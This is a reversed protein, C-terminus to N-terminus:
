AAKALEDSKKTDDLHKAADAEVTPVYGHWNGAHGFIFHCNHSPKECLCILNSPDLELDPHLHFPKKHHAELNESGGCAACAKGHLFAARVHPWHPSRATTNPKDDNM